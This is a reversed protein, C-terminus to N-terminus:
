WKLFNVEENHVLREQWGKLKGKTPLTINVQDVSRKSQFIPYYRQDKAKFDLKYDTAIQPLVKLCAQKTPERM